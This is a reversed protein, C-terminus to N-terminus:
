HRKLKRLREELRGSRTDLVLYCWRRADGEGASQCPVDDKVLVYRGIDNRPEGGALWWVLILLFAVGALLTWHERMWEIADGRESPLGDHKSDAM